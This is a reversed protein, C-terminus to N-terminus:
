RIAPDKDYRVECYLVTKHSHLGLFILESFLWSYILLCFCTGTKGTDEVLDEVCSKAGRCCLFM